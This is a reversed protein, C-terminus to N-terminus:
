GACRHRGRRFASAAHDGEEVGRTVLGKRRHTRTTGLRGVDDNQHHSGVVAHHRLGLFGDVVGLRGTHRQHHRDVLDVLRIGVGIADLLFQHGFADNRFLVAAIRREHRNRGLCPVPISSSSSCTSSCASTSSSFAGFSAGALPRIM